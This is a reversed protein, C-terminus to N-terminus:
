KRWHPLVWNCKSCKTGVTKQKCKPCKDPISVTRTEWGEVHYHPSKSNYTSLFDVLYSFGTAYEQKTILKRISDGVNGWCPRGSSVHPHDYAQEAAEKTNDINKIDVDGNIKFSILYQGIYYEKGKDVIYIKGTKGEFRSEGPISKIQEYSGSDLLYKMTQHDKKYVGEMEEKSSTELMLLHKRELEIQRATHVVQRNYVDLQVQMKGIEQKKDKAFRESEKRRLAIYDRIDKESIFLDFTEKNNDLLGDAKQVIYKFVIPTIENEMSFINMLIYINNWWVEAIVNGNEDKIHHAENDTHDLIIRQSKDQITYNQGKIKINKISTCGESSAEPTTYALINVKKDSFSVDKFMGDSPILSINRQWRISVYELILYYEEFTKINFECSPRKPMNIEFSTKQPEKKIIVGKNGSISVQGVKTIHKEAIDSVGRSPFRIKYLTKEEQEYIDEVVGREGNIKFASSAVEDLVVIDGLELM